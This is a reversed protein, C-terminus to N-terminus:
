RKGNEGEKSRRALLCKLRDIDIDVDLDIGIVIAIGLCIDM